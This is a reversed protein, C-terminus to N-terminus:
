AHMSTLRQPCLLQQMDSQGSCGAQMVSCSSVLAAASSTGLQQDSASAGDTAKQPLFMSSPVQRATVDSVRKSSVANSSDHEPDARRDKGPDKLGQHRPTSRLSDLISALIRSANGLGESQPTVHNASVRCGLSSPSSLGPM